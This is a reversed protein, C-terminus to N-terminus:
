DNFEYVTSNITIQVKTKFVEGDAYEVQSVSVSPYEGGARKIFASVINSPLAYGRNPNNADNAVALGVVSGDANVVVGGSYGQTFGVSVRTLPKSSGYYSKVEDLMKIHGTDFTIGEGKENGIVYVVDGIKQTANADFSVKKGKFNARKIKILALDFQLDSDIVEYTQANIPVIENDYFKAQASTFSYNIAHYCTVATVWEDDGDVVVATSKAWAGGTEFEICVLSSEYKDFIDSMSLPPPTCACIFLSSFITIILCLISVIKRKM